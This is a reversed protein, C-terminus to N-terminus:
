LCLSICIKLCIGLILCSFPLVFAPILLIIMLQLILLILQLSASKGSEVFFLPPILCSYASNAASNCIKWIGGFYPLFLAPILLILQLIGSKGSEVLILCFLCSYASNAASNWIKWIGGFLAPILCSYASNAASNWIKWIGGFYPLFLAPILLILQLIASKGSEM